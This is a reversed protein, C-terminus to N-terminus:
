QFNIWPLKRGLLNQLKQVDEQYFEILFKRDEPNIKPKSSKKQLFQTSLFKRTSESLLKRSLKSVTPNWLLSEAVQGRSVRYPNQIKPKFSDLSAEVDLFELVDELVQKTNKVFEEFIIIKVQNKGFTDLYRKIAQYYLGCQLIGITTFDNEELRKLEVQIQEHFTGIKIRSQVVPLYHSLAREVPDRVSIVIRANPAIQHILKPSIPDVLYFPTAEGVIKEDKVNEFLSLYEQKDTIPPLAIFNTDIKISQSFYYPEKMPSMYIGPVKKLYEYLSTTGTKPAGVIFFNPWTEM